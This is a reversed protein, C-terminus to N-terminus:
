EPNLLQILKAGQTQKLVRIANVLAWSAVALRKRKKKKKKAVECTNKIHSLFVVYQGFIYKLHTLDLFDENRFYELVTM